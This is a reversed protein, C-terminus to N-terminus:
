KQTIWISFTPWFWLQHVLHQENELGFCYFFINQECPKPQEGGWFFFFVMGFESHSTTGDMSLLKLVYELLLLRYASVLNDLWLVNILPMLIDWQFRKRFLYQFHHPYMNMRVMRMAVGHKLVSVFLQHNVLYEIWLLDLLTFLQITMMCESNHARFTGTSVEASIESEWNVGM